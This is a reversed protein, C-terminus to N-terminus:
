ILFISSLINYGQKQSIQGGSCFRGVTGKNGKIYGVGYVSTKSSNVKMLGPKYRKDKVSYKSLTNETSVYHSFNLIDM